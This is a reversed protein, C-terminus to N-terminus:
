LELPTGLDGSTTQFRGGWRSSSEFVSTRINNKALFYALSLGSLGGGVIVIKENSRKEM